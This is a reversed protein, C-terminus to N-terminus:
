APADASAARRIAFRIADRLAIALALIGNAVVSGLGSPGYRNLSIMQACLDGVMLPGGCVRPRMDLGSIHKNNWISHNMAFCIPATAESPLPLVSTQEDERSM